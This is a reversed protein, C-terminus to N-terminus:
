QGFGEREIRGDAGMRVTVTFLNGQRAGQVGQGQGAFGGMTFRIDTWRVTARGERDVFSRAAPFRSFGLFAQAVRSTSAQVVAPTWLNPYRRSLRWFGESQEGPDGFRGDLVDVDHLEYADSLRAIVQWRFPSLFSPIAAVEVLCRTASPDHPTTKGDLPWRDLLAGPQVADPCPKPLLPGFLRPAQVLAEHHATARLGYNMAVFVLAIAASRERGPWVSHTEAAKRAPVVTRGFWLGAALIALLYIDLIPLWDEAFWHWDFPSLLRTGYSTPLDMLVHCLVGTMAVLWLRGFSTHSDPADRNRTRLGAWVLAATALGLGVVGLAGHTPGRHWQLYKVAGGAVGVFDLDPANSALVLAM